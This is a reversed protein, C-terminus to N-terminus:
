RLVLRTMIREEYERVSRATGRWAALGDDGDDFLRRLRELTRAHDAGWGPHEDWHPVRDARDYAHWGLVRHPHFLDWGATFARAGLAVEDGFFYVHPDHPVERGFAAPALLFHLSLYEARVPGALQAPHALAHSTLRTLVGDQRELPYIKFPRAGAPPPSGPLYAPLYATLVPKAVTRGLDDLMGLALEDWGPVFRLHSDIVLTVDDDARARQQLLSRAWNPGRSTAAPTTEVTM